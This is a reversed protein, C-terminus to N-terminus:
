RQEVRKDLFEDDIRKHLKKLLAFKQKTMKNM